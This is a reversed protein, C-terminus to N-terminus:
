RAWLARVFAWLTWRNPLTVVRMSGWSSERLGDPQNRGMWKDMVESTPAEYTILRTVKM